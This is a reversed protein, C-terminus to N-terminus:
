YQKILALRVPNIDHLTKLSGHPDWWQSAHQAFKAMEAPDISSNEKM